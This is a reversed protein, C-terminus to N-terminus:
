FLNLTWFTSHFSYNYWELGEIICISNVGKTKDLVGSVSTQKNLPGQISGM